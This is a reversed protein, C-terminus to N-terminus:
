RFVDVFVGEILASLKCPSGWGRPAISGDNLAFIILTLAATILFSGFWDVRRDAETSRQDPDITLFGGLCVLTAIGASVYFVSRWSQRIVRIDVHNTRPFSPSIFCVLDSRSSRRRDNLRFHFRHLLNSQSLPSFLVPPRVSPRAQESHLLHQLVPKRPLSHLLWFALRLLCRNSSYLTRTISLRVASPIM